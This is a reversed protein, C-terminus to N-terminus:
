SINSFRKWDKPGKEKSELSEYPQNLPSLTLM